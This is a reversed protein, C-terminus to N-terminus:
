EGKELRTNKRRRARGGKKDKSEHQGEAAGGPAEKEPSSQAGVERGCSVPWLVDSMNAIFGNNYINTPVDGPDPYYVIDEDACEEEKGRRQRLDYGRMFAGCPTVSVVQEDGSSSIKGEESGVKAKAKAKEEGAEINRKKRRLECQKLEKLYQERLGTLQSHASRAEDWKHTENTTTGRSVLYLHYGLFGVMACWMVFVLAFIIAVAYQHYLLYKLVMVFNAKRAKKTIQNMFTAHFLRKEYVESLLVAGSIYSCYLLFVVHLALFGLFHRYNGGGVCQNLWICHHDFRSVCINCLRCHKSRAVKKTQCTSCQLGDAYV